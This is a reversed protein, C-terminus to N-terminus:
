KDKRCIEIDVMAKQGKGCRRTMLCGEAQLIGGARDRRGLPGRGVGPDHQHKGGCFLFRMCVCVTGIAYM